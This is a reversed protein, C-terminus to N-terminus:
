NPTLLLSVESLYYFTNVWRMDNWIINSIHNKQTFQEKLIAM